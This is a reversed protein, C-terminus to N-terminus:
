RRDRGIGQAELLRRGLARVEDRPKGALNHAEVLVRRTENPPASEWWHIKWAIMINNIVSMELSAEKFINAYTNAASFLTMLMYDVPYDNVVTADSSSHKSFNYPHAMADLVEDIMEKPVDASSLLTRIQNLGINENRGSLATMIELAASALVHASILDDEYLFARVASNIETRCVARRDLAIYEMGPNTESMRLAAREDLSMRQKKRPM